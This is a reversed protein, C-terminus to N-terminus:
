DMPALLRLNLFFVSFFRKSNKHKSLADLLIFLMWVRAYNLPLVAAEWAEYSPEIGKAREVAYIQSTGCFDLIIQLDKACLSKERRSTRSHEVAIRRCGPSKLGCVLGNKRARSIGSQQHLPSTSTVLM